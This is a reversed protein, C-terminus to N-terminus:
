TNAKPNSPDTKWRRSMEDRREQGTWGPHQDRLEAMVNSMFVQYATRGGTHSGGKGSKNSSSKTKKKKTDAKPASSSSAKTKGPIIRPM